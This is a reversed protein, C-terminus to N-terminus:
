SNTSINIVKDLIISSHLRIKVSHEGVTRIHNGNVQIDKHSVTIGKEKLFNSIDRASISGFLNGEESSKVSFDINLASIKESLDKGESLAADAQKKLESKEQEFRAINEKSALIAQRKVFLYNRAYGPKVDVIEGFSSRKTNELMIVKM